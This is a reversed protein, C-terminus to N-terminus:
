INPTSFASSQEAGSGTAKKRKKTSGGSAGENWRTLVQGVAEPIFSWDSPPRGINEILVGPICTFPEDEGWPAVMRLFVQSLTEHLTSEQQELAGWARCISDDIWKRAFTEVRQLEQTAAVGGSMIEEM